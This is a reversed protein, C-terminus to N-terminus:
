IGKIFEYPNTYFQIKSSLNTEKYQKAKFGFVHLKSNQKNLLLNEFEKFFDSSKPSTSINTIFEVSNFKDHIFSLHDISISPGLFVTNKKEKLLLYQIFLIGIQHIEKEPLFLIYNKASQYNHQSLADIQLLLKQHILTSVFHEQAPNISNTQWMLGIETLLKYFIKIYITEFTETKLLSNYNEEFLQKDFNLMSLKFNNYQSSFENDEELHEAIIDKVEENTKKAIVSIKYGYKILLSINLLKQLDINSYSRINTDSRTPNFLAYRKEWIRITHAKIQSLNELDKISFSTQIGM